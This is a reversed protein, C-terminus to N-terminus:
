RDHAGGVRADRRDDIRVSAHEALESEFFFSDDVPKQRLSQRSRSEYHPFAPDLDRNKDKREETPEKKTMQMRTWLPGVPLSRNQSEKCITRM